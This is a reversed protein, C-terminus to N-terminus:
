ALTPIGFFSAATLIVLGCILLISVLLIAVESARWDSKGGPRPRTLIVVRGDRARLPIRNFSIVDLSRAPRLRGNVELPRTANDNRRVSNQM